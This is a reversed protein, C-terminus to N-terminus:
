SIYLLYFLKHCMNLYYKNDPRFISMSLCDLDYNHDYNYGFFFDLNQSLLLNHCLASILTMITKDCLFIQM